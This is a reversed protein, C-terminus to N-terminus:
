RPKRAAHQLVTRVQDEFTTEPFIQQAQKFSGVGFGYLAASGMDEKRVRGQFYDYNEFRVTGELFYAETYDSFNRAGDARKKIEINGRPPHGPRGAPNNSRVYRLYYVPPPAAWRNLSYYFLVWYYYAKRSVPILVDYCRCLFRYLPPVHRLYNKIKELAHMFLNFM